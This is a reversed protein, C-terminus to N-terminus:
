KELYTINFDPHLSREKGDAEVLLYSGHACGVIVGIKVENNEVFKVEVGKYANVKYAIRISELSM